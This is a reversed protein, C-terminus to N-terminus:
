ENKEHAEVDRPLWIYGGLFVLSLLWENRDVCQGVFMKRVTFVRLGKRVGLLKALPLRVFKAEVKESAFHTKGIAVHFFRDRCEVFDNAQL